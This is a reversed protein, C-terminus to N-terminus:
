RSPFSQREAGSVGTVAARIDHDTGGCMEAHLEALVNLTRMRYM